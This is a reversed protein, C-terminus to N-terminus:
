RDSHYPISLDHVADILAAAHEPDVDLTIGHGSYLFCLGRIEHSDVRTGARVVADRGRFGRGGAVQLASVM